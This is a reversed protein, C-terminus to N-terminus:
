ETALASHTGPPQQDCRPGFNAREVCRMKQKAVIVSGMIAHMRGRRFIGRSRDPIPHRLERADRVGGVIGGLDDMISARFLVNTPVPRTNM